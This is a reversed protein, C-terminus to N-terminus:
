SRIGEHDNDGFIQIAERFEFRRVSKVLAEELDESEFLLWASAEAKGAGEQTSRLCGHDHFLDDGEACFPNAQETPAARKLRVESDSVDHNWEM